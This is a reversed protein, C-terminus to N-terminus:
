MLKNLISLDDSIDKTQNKDKILNFINTAKELIIKKNKINEKIKIPPFGGNFKILSKDNNIMKNEM